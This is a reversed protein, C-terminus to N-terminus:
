HSLGKQTSWTWCLNRLTLSWQAYVRDASVKRLDM